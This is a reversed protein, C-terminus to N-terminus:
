EDNTDDEHTLKNKTRHAIVMSRFHPDSQILYEILDFMYHLKKVDQETLTAEGIRVHPKMTFM